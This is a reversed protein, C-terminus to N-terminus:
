AHPRRRPPSTFEELPDKPEAPLPLEIKARDPPTMGFKQFLGHLLAREPGSIDHRRMRAWLQCLSEAAPRDMQTLLGPPSIAQLEKWRAWEEADFTGPPKGLGLKPQPERERQRRRKPNKKFAGILELVRTSKRPRAM